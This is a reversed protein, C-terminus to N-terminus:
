GEFIERVPLTFGPLVDGGDLTDDVGLTRNEGPTHVNLTQSSPYAFLILRVGARRYDNLKDQIDDASDNPSVVEVVLDPVIRIFKKPLHEPAREKAIYGVDPARVTDRGNEDQLLVYGTEAATVKGLHNRKVYNGIEILFNAAISGHEGGAPAMEIIAGNTLELRKESNEPLHAIEWFEDATYFKEQVAM